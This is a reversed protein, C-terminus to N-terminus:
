FTGFRCPGPRWSMRCRLCSPTAPSSRLISRGASPLRVWVRTAGGGRPRTGMDRGQQSSLLGPVNELVIWRPQLEEVLRIVEYFLGSRNGALGARGGAVSLDQCPFGACLVDVPEVNLASVERIDSHIPTEPWHRRLVGQAQRDIEVMWAIRMGLRQLALDFGGIGTFLSGVSLM